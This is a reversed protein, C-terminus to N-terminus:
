LIWRIGSGLVFRLLVSCRPFIIRGGNDSSSCQNSYKLQKAAMKWPPRDLWIPSPGPGVTMQGPKAEHPLSRLLALPRVRMIPRLFVTRSNLVKRLKDARFAQGARTVLRPGNRLHILYNHFTLLKSCGGSDEQSM